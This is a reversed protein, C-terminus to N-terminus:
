APDDDLDLNQDIENGYGMGHAVDETLSATAAYLRNQEALLKNQEVIAEVLALAARTQVLAFAAQIRADHSGVEVILDVSDDLKEIGIHIEEIQESLNKM